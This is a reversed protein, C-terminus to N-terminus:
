RVRVKVPRSAGASYQYGVDGTAPTAIRFTYVTPQKTRLFTYLYEFRGEHKSVIEDFVQWHTGEWVEPLLPVGQSPYPGGQIRGTWVITGHNHTRLPSIYLAIKPVVKVRLTKPALPYEGFFASYSFTIERSPGPAIDWHFSGDTAVELLAPGGTASGPITFTDAEVMAGRAPSGSCRLRGEVIARKGFPLRIGDEKGDVAVRITPDACPSGNPVQGAQLLRDADLTRMQAIKAEAAFAPAASLALMTAATPSIRRPLVM